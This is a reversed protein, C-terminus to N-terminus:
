CSYCRSRLKSNAIYLLVLADFTVRAVWVYAAGLMGFNSICVYMSPLYLACELVHVKATVKSDGTSQILAFPVRAVCNFYIGVMLVLSVQHAKEAFSPDIWISLFGKSFVGMFICICLMFLVVLILTARYLQNLESSYSAWLESFKPFAVSTVATPLIFLRSFLDFPVTYFVINVAGLKASLVFKDLVDMIPSLLNSLTMWSGFRLLLTLEKQSYAATKKFNTETVVSKYMFYIILARSM